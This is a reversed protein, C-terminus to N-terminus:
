DIVPIHNMNEKMMKVEDPLEKLIYRVYHCQRGNRDISYERQNEIVYGQKRLNFIIASLRTAGFKEIAEWSTINGVDELWCRVQNMKTNFSDM